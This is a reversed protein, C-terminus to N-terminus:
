LIASTNLNLERPRPRIMLYILGLINCLEPVHIGGVDDLNGTRSRSTKGCKLLELDPCM